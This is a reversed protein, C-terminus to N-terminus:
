RNTLARTLNQKQRITGVPKLLISNLLDFSSLTWQPQRRIIARREGAKFGPRKESKSLWPSCTKSRREVGSLSGLSRLFSLGQLFRGHSGRATRSTGLTGFAGPALSRSRSRSRDHGRETGFRLSGGANKRRRVPCCLRYVGGEMM